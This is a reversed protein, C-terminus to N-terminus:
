DEENGIIIIGSRQSFAVDTVTHQIQLDPTETMISVTYDDGHENHIKILKDILDAIKM